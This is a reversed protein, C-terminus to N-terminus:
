LALFRLWQNSSNMDKAKYKYGLFKGIICIKFMQTVVSHDM